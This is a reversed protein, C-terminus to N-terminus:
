VLGFRIAREEKTLTELNDQQFTETLLNLNDHPYEERYEKDINGNPDEKIAHHLMLRTTEIRNKIEKEYQPVLEYDNYVSWRDYESVWRYYENGHEENPHNYAIHAYSNQNLEWNYPPVFINTQIIYQGNIVRVTCQEGYQAKAQETMQRSQEQLVEDNNM